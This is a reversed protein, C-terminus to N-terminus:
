ENPEKITKEILKKLIARLKTIGLYLPREGESCKTQFTAILTKNKSKSPSTLKEIANL